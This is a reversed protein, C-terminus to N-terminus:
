FLSLGLESTCQTFVWDVAYLGSPNSGTARGSFRPPPVTPEPPWKPSAKKGGGKAKGPHLKAVWPRDPGVRYPVTIVWPLAATLGLSGMWAAVWGPLLASDGGGEKGGGEGRAGQGRGGEKWRGRQSGAGGREQMERGLGDGGCGGGGVVELEDVGM